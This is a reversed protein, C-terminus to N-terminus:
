ATVLAKRDRIETSEGIKTVGLRGFYTADIAVADPASLSDLDGKVFNWPHLGAGNGNSGVIFVPTTGGSPVTWETFGIVVPVVQAIGRISLAQIRDHEDLLSP